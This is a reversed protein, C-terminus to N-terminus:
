TLSFDDGQRHLYEAASAIARLAIDINGVERGLLLALKALFLERNGPAIQDLQGAFPHSLALNLAADRMLLWGATPPTM